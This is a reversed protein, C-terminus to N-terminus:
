RLVENKYLLSAFLYVCSAALVNSLGIIFLENFPNLLVSMSLGIWWSSCEPCLLPTRIYPIDAVKNRLWRTVDAHSWLHSLSISIILFVL